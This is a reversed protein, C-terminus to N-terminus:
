GELLNQVVFWVNAPQEALRRMFYPDWDAGYPVYARVPRGKRMLKVQLDRRIGYLMQFEFARKDAGERAACEKTAAIMAEDHAAIGHYLNLLKRRLKIFNADVDKDL